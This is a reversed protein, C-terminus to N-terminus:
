SNISKYINTILSDILLFYETDSIVKDNHWKWITDICVQAKKADEITFYKRKIAYHEVLWGDCIRLSNLYKDVDTGFSVGEFNQISNIITRAVRFCYAFSLTDGCVVSFGKRKLFAGVTGIGGFPDCVFGSSFYKDIIQKITM